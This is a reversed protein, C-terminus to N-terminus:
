TNPNQTPPLMVSPASMYSNGFMPNGPMIGMTDENQMGNTILQAGGAGSGGGAKAGGTAGGLGGGTLMGLGAGALGSVLGSLGPNTTTTSDSSGNMNSATSGTSTSGYPVRSAAAGMAGMAGEENSLMAQTNLFPVQSLFGSENGVKQTQIDTAGQALAGSDEVGKSALTSALSQTSANALGNLSQLYSATQADGFVPQQAKAELNQGQQVNGQFAQQLWAPLNPTTSSSNTGSQQQQQQTQTNQSSGWSM